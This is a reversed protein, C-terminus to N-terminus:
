VDMSQPFDSMAKVVQIMLSFLTCILMFKMNIDNVM